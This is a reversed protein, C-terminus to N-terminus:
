FRIGVNTMRTRAFQETQAFWRAGVGLPGSVAGDLHANGALDYLDRRWIVDVRLAGATTTLWASGISQASGTRPHVDLWWTRLSVSPAIQWALLAGASTDDLGAASRTGFSTLGIRVRQLDAYTLNLEDSSM